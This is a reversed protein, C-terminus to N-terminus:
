VQPVRLGTEFTSVSLHSPHATALDVRVQGPKLGAGWMKQWRSNYDDWEVEAATGDYAGRATPDSPNLLGKTSTMNRRRAVLGGRGAAFRKGPRAHPGAGRAFSRAKRASQSLYGVAICALDRVPLSGM